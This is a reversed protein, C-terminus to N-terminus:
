LVAGHVTADESSPAGRGQTWYESVSIHAARALVMLKVHTVRTNSDSMMMSINSCIKCLGGKTLQELECPKPCKLQHM